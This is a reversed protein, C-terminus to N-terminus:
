ERPTRASASYIAGLFRSPVRGIIRPEVLSAAEALSPWSRASFPHPVWANGSDADYEVVLFTGGPRLRAALAAIVSRQEPRQVFHISNAAVLGDLEPLASLDTRFDTVLTTLHTGPLAAAISRANAALAGGDRDVAVIHAGPGLLDALALTFAGDGAGIDAWRAGPTPTAIAPRLLSVHDSHDM